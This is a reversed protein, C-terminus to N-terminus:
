VNEVEFIVQKGSADIKIVEKNDLLTGLEIMPGGPPDIFSLNSMDFEGDGTAGMRCMALAAESIIFEYKIGDESVVSWENGYRNKYVVKNVYM